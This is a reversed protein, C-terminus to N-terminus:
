QGITALHKKDGSKFIPKVIGVKLANAFVGNQLCINTLHILKDTIARFTRKFLNANIGDIGACINKMGRVIEKLEIANTSGM